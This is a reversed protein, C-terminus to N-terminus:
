LASLLAGEWCSLSYRTSMLPLTILTIGLMILLDILHIGTSTLPPVISRIGLICLIYNM